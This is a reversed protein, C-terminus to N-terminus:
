EGSEKLCERAMDMIEDGHTDWTEMQCLVACYLRHLAQRLRENQAKLASMEARMLQIENILKEAETLRWAM